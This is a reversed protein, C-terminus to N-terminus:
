VVKLSPTRGASVSYTTTDMKKLVDDVTFSAPKM